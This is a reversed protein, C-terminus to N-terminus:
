DEGATPTQQYLSLRWAGETRRYVSSMLAHFPPEGRRWAHGAYVLAAAEDGLPVLRPDTIEYGAWPPAERLAEVTAARDLSMGNALVMRGDASMTSEYFGAGTGDCLARWGAHELELLEDFVAM